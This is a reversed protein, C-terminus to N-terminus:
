SNVQSQSPCKEKTSNMCHLLLICCHSVVDVPAERIRWSPTEIVKAAAKQREKEGDNDEAHFKRMHNFLHGFHKFTKRCVKCEKDDSAAVANSNGAEAEEDAAAAVALPNYSKTKRPRGRNGTGSTAKSGSKNVPTHTFLHDMLLQLSPFAKGCKKCDHSDRRGKKQPTKEM